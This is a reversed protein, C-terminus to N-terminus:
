GDRVNLKVDVAAQYRRLVVVPVTQSSAVCNASVVGQGGTLVGEAGNGEIYVAITAFTGDRKGNRRGSITEGRALIGKGRPPPM